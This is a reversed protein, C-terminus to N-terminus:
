EIGASYIGCIGHSHAIRETRNSDALFGVEDDRFRYWGESEYRIAVLSGEDVANDKAAADDLCLAVGSFPMSTTIM